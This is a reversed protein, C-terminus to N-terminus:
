FWVQRDFLVARGYIVPEQQPTRLKDMARNFAELRLAPPPDWFEDPAFRVPFEVVLEYMISATWYVATGTENLPLNRVAGMDDVFMDAAGNYSNVAVREWDAGPFLPDLVRHLDKTSPEEPLDAEIWDLTILDSNRIPGPEIITYRTMM